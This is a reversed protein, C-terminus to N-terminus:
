QRDSRQNRVMSCEYASKCYAGTINLVRFCYPVLWQIYQISWMPHPSEFSKSTVSAQYSKGDRQRSLLHGWATHQSRGTAVGTLRAQMFTINGLGFRERKVLICLAKSSGGDHIWGKSMTDGLLGVVGGVHSDM